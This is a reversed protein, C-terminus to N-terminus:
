IRFERGCIRIRICGENEVGSTVFGWIEDTDLEHGNPHHM